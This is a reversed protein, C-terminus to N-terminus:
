LVGSDVDISTIMLTAAHVFSIGKLYEHPPGEGGPFAFCCMRIINVVSRCFSTRRLYSSRINSRTCFTNLCNGITVKILFLIKTVCPPAVCCVCVREEEEEEDEQGNM